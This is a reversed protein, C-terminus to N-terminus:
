RTMRLVTLAALLAELDNEKVNEKGVDGILDFATASEARQVRDNQVENGERKELM